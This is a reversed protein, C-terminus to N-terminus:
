ASQPMSVYRILGVELKVGNELPESATVISRSAVGEPADWRISDQQWGSEPIQVTYRM